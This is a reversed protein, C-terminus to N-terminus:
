STILFRRNKVIYEDIKKKVTAETQYRAMKKPDMPFSYSKATKKGNIVEFKIINIKITSQM